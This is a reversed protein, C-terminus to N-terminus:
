WGSYDCGHSRNESILRFRRLSCAGFDLVICFGVWPRCWGEQSQGHALRPAAGGATTWKEAKHICNRQEALRPASTLNAGKNRSAEAANNKSYSNKLRGRNGPAVILYIVVNKKKGILVIKNTRAFLFIFSSSLFLSYSYIVHESLINNKSISKKKM